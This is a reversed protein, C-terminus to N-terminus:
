SAVTAFGDQGPMVIDLLILSPKIAAAKTLAEDGTSAVEVQRGCSQVV